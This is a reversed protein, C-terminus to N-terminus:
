TEEPGRHQWAALADTGEMAPPGEAGCHRCLVRWPGIWKYLEFESRGCFPCSRTTEHALDMTQTPERRADRHHALDDIVMLLSYLRETASHQVWDTGAKHHIWDLLQAFPDPM